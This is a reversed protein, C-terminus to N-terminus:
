AHSCKWILGLVELWMNICNPQFKQSCLLHVPTDKSHRRPSPSTLIVWCMCSHHFLQTKLLTHYCHRVKILSQQCYLLPTIDENEYTLHQLTQIHLLIKEREAQRDRQLYACMCACSLITRLQQILLWTSWDGSHRQAKNKICFVTCIKTQIKDVHACKQACNKLQPWKSHGRWM